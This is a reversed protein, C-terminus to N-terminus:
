MPLHSGHGALRPWTADRLQWLWEDCDNDYDEDYDDDCDNDYGNTMITTGTMTAIMMIM